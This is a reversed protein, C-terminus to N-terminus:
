AFRVVVFVGVALDYAVCAIAYWDPQGADLPGPHHALDWLAHLGYGSALLGASGTVLAGAGLLVFALAGASQVMPAQPTGSLIAFGVYVGAILGLLVALVAFSADAPVLAAGGITIAALGLGLGLAAGTRM